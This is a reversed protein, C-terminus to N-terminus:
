PQMVFLNDGTIHQNFNIGRANAKVGESTGPPAQGGPDHIQCNVEYQAIGEQGTYSNYHIRFLARGGCYDPPLEVPNGDEDTVEGCGYFQFDILRTLSFTGHDIETSGAWIEYDGDGSATKGVVNFSGELDSVLTLGNPAASTTESVFVQYASTSHASGASGVVIAATSLALALTWAFRRM